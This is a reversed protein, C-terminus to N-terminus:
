CGAPSCAPGHCTALSCSHSYCEFCTCKCHRTSEECSWAYSSACTRQEAEECNTTYSLSCCNCTRAFATGSSGLLTGIGVAGAFAAKSVRSVFRRRGIRESLRETIETM